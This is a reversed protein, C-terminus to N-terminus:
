HAARGRLSNLMDAIERAAEETEYREGMFSADPALVHYHDDHQVVRFVPIPALAEANKFAAQAMTSLEQLTKDSAERRSRLRENGRVYALLQLVELVVLVWVGVAIFTTM